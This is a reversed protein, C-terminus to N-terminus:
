MWCTRSRNGSYRIKRGSLENKREKEGTKQSVYVRTQVCIVIVETGKSM